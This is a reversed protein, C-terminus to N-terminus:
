LANDEGRQLRLLKEKGRGLREEAEDAEEVEPEGAPLGSEQGQEECRLEDERGYPDLHGGRIQEKRPDLHHPDLAPEVHELM